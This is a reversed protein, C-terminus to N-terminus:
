EPSARLLLLLSLTLRQIEMLRAIVDEKTEEPMTALWLFTDAKRTDVPM